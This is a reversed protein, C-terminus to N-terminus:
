GSAAFVGTVSANMFLGLLMVALVMWLTRSRHAPIMTAAWSTYSWVAFIALLMVLTEAAGRWSPHELLHHSLQAVAFVFVLDFFLELPTVEYRQDQRDSPSPATV